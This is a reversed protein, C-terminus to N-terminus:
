TLRAILNMFRSQLLHPSKKMQKEDRLKASVPFHNENFLSFNENVECCNQRNTIFSIQNFSNRNNQSVNESCKECYDM